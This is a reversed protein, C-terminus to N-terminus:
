CIYVSWCNQFVKCKCVGLNKGGGLLKMGSEISVDDLVYGTVCRVSVSEGVAYRKRAPSMVSNDTVSGSCEM